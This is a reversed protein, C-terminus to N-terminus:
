PEEENIGLMKINSHGLAAKTRKEEKEANVDKIIGDLRMTKISVM